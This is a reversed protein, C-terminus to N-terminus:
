PFLGQEKLKKIRPQAKEKVRAYAEKEDRALDSEAKVVTFQDGYCNYGAIAEDLEQADKEPINVNRLLKIHFPDAQIIWFGNRGYVYLTKYQYFWGMELEYDYVNNDLGTLRFGSVDSSQVEPQTDWLVWKDSGKPMSFIASRLELGFAAVTNDCSGSPYKFDILARVTGFLVHYAIILLILVCCTKKLLLLKQM